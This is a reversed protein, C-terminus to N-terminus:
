TEELIKRLSARIPEIKSEAEERFAIEDAARRRKLDEISAKHLEIRDNFNETISKEKMEAEKKVYEIKRDKENKYASIKQLLRQKQNSRELLVFGSFVLSILFGIGFTLMSWKIGTFLITGMTGDFTGSSNNLNNSYGAFGGILFVTLAIIFNYTMSNQFSVNPDYEKELHLNNLRNEVVSINEYTIKELKSIVEKLKTKLDNKADQLEKMFQEIVMGNDKIKADFLELQPRYETHFKENVAAEILEITKNYKEKFHDLSAIFFVHKTEESNGIMKTLFTINKKIDDSYYGELQLKELLNIKDRLKVFKSYDSVPSENLKDTITDIHIAFPPYYFINKIIPNRLFYIFMATSSNEVAYMLRYLDYSYIEKLLYGAIENQQMKISTYSLYLKATMGYPNHKLAETFHISSDYYNFVSLYAFGSYVEMLYYLEIKFKDAMKSVAPSMIVKKFEDVAKIPNQLTPEFSYLVAMFISNLIVGSNGEKRLLSMTSNALMKKQGENKAIAWKSFYDKILKYDYIASKTGLQNKTHEELYSLLPIEFIWFLASEEHRIFFENLNAPLQLNYFRSSNKISALLDVERRLEVHFYDRGVKNFKGLDRELMVEESVPNSIVEDGSFAINNIQQDEFM